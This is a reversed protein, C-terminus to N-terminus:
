IYTSENGISDTDNLKIVRSHEDDTVEPIARVFNSDTVAIPRAKSTTVKSIEEDPNEYPTEHVIVKGLFTVRDTSDAKKLPQEVGATTETSFHVKASSSHAYRENLPAVYVAPEANRVPTEPAEDCSRMSATRRRLVRIKDRFARVDDKYSPYEYLLLALREAHNLYNVKQRDARYHCCRDAIKIFHQIFFDLLTCM